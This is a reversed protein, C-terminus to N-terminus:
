KDTVFHKKDIPKVLANCVFAMGLAGAMTYLSTNYLSISPDITGPPCLELLRPLTVAKAEVLTQPACHFV